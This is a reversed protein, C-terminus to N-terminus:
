LVRTLPWPLPFIPFPALAKPVELTERSTHHEPHWYRAGDGGQGGLPISSRVAPGTVQLLAWAEGPSPAGRSGPPSRRSWTSCPLLHLAGPWPLRLSPGARGQAPGLAAGLDARGQSGLPLLKLFPM